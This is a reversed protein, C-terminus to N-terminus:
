IVQMSHGPFLRKKSPFLQRARIIKGGEGLSAASTSARAHTNCYANTLVVVDFKNNDYAWNWGCFMFFFFTEEFM